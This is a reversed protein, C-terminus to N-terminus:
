CMKRWVWKWPFLMSVRQQYDRYKDGYEAIIKREELFTGVVLYVSLICTALFVNLSYASHISWIFLLSGLYWPHRIIGFIGKDSFEESEGLLTSAVGTQIQKIGLFYQGDYRKSGASFLVLSVLFFLGRVLIWSGTWSFTVEGGAGRTFILLPIFTFFSIGNYLLRYYRYGNPVRRRIAGTISTDILLSHMICWCLWLFCLLITTNNMIDLMFMMGHLCHCISLLLRGCVFLVKVYM